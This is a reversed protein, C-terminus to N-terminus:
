QERYGTAQERDKTGFAPISGARPLGWRNKLGVRRGSGGSRSMISDNYCIYIFVPLVAPTLDQFAM